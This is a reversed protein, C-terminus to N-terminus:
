GKKLEDGEASMGLRTCLRRMGADLYKREPKELRPSCGELSGLEVWNRSEATSQRSKPDVTPSERHEDLDNRM